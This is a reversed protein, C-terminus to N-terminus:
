RSTPSIPSWMMPRAQGRRSCSLARVLFFRIKQSRPRHPAVTLDAPTM